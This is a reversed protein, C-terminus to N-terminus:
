EYRLADIPNMKAAKSAPYSGFFLGILMSFGVAVAVASWSPLVTRKLLLGAISGLGAGLLIGIIGGILCIIMSEVLFQTRIAKNKAGLAKRIGIERTRETVSVLMINMVGIGGVLLSIGAIVSISTSVSSLMSNMETMINKMSSGSIKANTNDPLYQSFFDSATKAFSDTDTGQSCLVLISTYGTGGTSANAYTVPIYATQEESSSDTLANDEVGYVGVVTYIVDGKSSTVALTKGISDSKGFYKAASAKSIVIVSRAQDIDEQNLLRGSRLKINQVTFYDPNVGTISFSSNKIQDTTTVLNSSSYVAVGKVKDPYRNKFSSITEDKIKLDDTMELPTNSDKATVSIDINNGGINSLTDNVSGILAQGVSVIAIVSAIGIIIGLMTLLSRVKNARLGELALRINEQLDM